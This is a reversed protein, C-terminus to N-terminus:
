SALHYIERYAPGLLTLVQEHLPTLHLVLMQLGVATQVTLRDIGEFCQFIWRMTPRPAPQNLQNPRDPRHSLAASAVPAGGYLLRYVLLYLVM